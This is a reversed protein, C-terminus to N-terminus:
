LRRSITDKFWNNSRTSILNESRGFKRATVPKVLFDSAGHEMADLQCDVDSEASIFLIPILNWTDDQRVVQVLEPGSCDPMYMDTMIVDPHFGPLADLVQMPDSLVEVIM